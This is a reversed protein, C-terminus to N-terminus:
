HFDASVIWNGDDSPDAFVEPSAGAKTLTGAFKEASRKNTWTATIFGPLVIASVAGANTIANEVKDMEAIKSAKRSVYRAAAVVEKTDLHDKALDLHAETETETREVREFSWGYGTGEAWIRLEFTADGATARRIHEGGMKTSWHFGGWMGEGIGRETLTTRLETANDAYNTM